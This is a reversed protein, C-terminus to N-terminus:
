ASPEMVRKIQLLDSNRQNEYINRLVTKRVAENNFKGLTVTGDGKCSKCKSECHDCDCDCGGDGGCEPCDIEDELEDQTLDGAIFRSVFDHNISQWQEFSYTKLGM